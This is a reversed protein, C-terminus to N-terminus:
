GRGNERRALILTWYGPSSDAFERVDEVIREEPMGCAVVGVSHEAWGREELAHAIDPANKYAKMFVVNEALHGLERFRDGGEVGSLVLLSEEGEVLPRNVRAAAAQYSTIGPVAVQPAEPCIRRVNRSLYGFTSYTMCDGLTLFAADKGQLLVDAVQLANEEWARAMVERDKSMPFALRVVPTGEPVHPRAIDVALSHQNKTSSATFIVQVRSLVRVARLTILEPDGPGVGIGHLTGPTQAM